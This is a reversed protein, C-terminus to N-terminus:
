RAAAGGSRRIWESRQYEGLARIIYAYTTGVWAPQERILTVIESKSGIDIGATPEDLILVEPETALWKAIVVKQANGGSLALLM